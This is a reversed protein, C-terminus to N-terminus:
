SHYVEDHVTVTAVKVSHRCVHFMQIDSFENEPLRFKALSLRLPKGNIAIRTNTSTIDSQGVTPLM